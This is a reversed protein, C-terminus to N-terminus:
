RGRKPTPLLREMVKAPVRRRLAENLDAKDRIVVEVSDWEYRCRKNKCALGTIRFLPGVPIEDLLITFTCVHRKCRPCSLYKKPHLAM